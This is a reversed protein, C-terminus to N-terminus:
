GEPKLAAIAAMIDDSIKQYFSQREARSVRSVDFRLPKGFTVHLTRPRPLSKGRGMAEFSGWIRAPVVPVDAKAVLFGLGPKASQLNGDRTRTGEPFLMVAEGRKLADLIGRIAGVDGGERDIPIAKWSRLLAGAFFNQFLTKRAMFCIQRPIAQGVMPPDLFSAHNSAILFPGERPVNDAHQVSGRFYCRFLIQFGAKGIAYSLGM